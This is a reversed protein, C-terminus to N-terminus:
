ISKVYKTNYQEMRTLLEDKYDAVKGIVEFSAGQESSILVVFQEIAGGGMEEVMMAYATGQLKYDNVYKIKSDSRATKFDIISKIGNYEAVCDSTGALNMTDSYLIIECGRVNDIKDLYQVLNEFHAKVLLPTKKEAMSDPALKNLLYHEVRKHVATGIEAANQLIYSTAGEGGYRKLMSQRWRDLGSKDSTKSLMTTVSPHRKGSKPSKYYHENGTHMTEAQVFKLPIQIFQKFM